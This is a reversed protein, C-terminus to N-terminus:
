GTTGTRAAGARLDSQVGRLAPGGFYNRRDRCVRVGASGPHVVVIGSDTVHHGARRDRELDLGIETYEPLHIGSDIIARRIRSYRGVNVNPFLISSEVESYSNIRVGPSLISNMVRGGSIICGACIMSNVGIGMRRGQEAFVFKPPPLQPQLTRVPWEADYLNFVPSVSVLEMNTQYYADLTGIDRWYRVEKRNEDIFDYAFVRRGQKVMRPLIDRGFDHSTKSAAEDEALADLLAATSFLYIGMSASCMEPNFRSRTPNGHQPKEEFGTIRFDDGIVVIGFRRADEPTVQTTGVTVDAQQEIHTELMHVYNMKYVHDAALILTYPLGEAEISQANQYVANATGLYWEDSVRKSPPLTEIFEGMEPSLINWGHRIHSNLSIAKYQTLIYIKRLGSNLCNSLTIDIIRYVGGFPIAPKAMEKTLPFLREGAGGALMITLVNNM